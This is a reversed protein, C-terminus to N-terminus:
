RIQEKRIAAQVFETYTVLPRIVPHEELFDFQQQAPARRKILERITQLRYAGYSLATECASEVAANQHKDALQKLGMLVRIGAVGRASIMAAAWDRTKPGIHSVKALWWTANREVGSIKKELLHCNQTSWGGPAKRAHLAIQQMRNNFLRVLRSDWRAWVTKRLYEPPASYFAKEITVHGDSHVTREEEHFFPFRELTLPILANKEHEHFAKGVQQRTTGHIRTDAVSSEWHWLHENQQTLSTFARGKLANEQVYDVGREVKGKHRPMRVRTPLFVTGYHEAFSRVKPNLEPDFWDAKTVAARLNDIVLTKPVGGFHWFANELCRIFNETTQRDVVESYGKRSHSLVVRLVHPRRRRKGDQAIIRAGQGFDVQAEQGPDCEMRRFPADSSGRLSRVYRKVSDYSHAFDFEEVLDQFIRQASLRQQLKEIIVDRHSECASRSSSETEDIQGESGTPVKTPKSKLYEAVTTRHIALERAIRRNSWGQKKLTHITQVKDMKLRNAMSKEQKFYDL